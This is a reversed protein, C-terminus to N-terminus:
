NGGPGSAERKLISVLEVCSHCARGNRCGRGASQWCCITLAGDMGRQQPLVLQQYGGPERKHFILITTVSLVGVVLHMVLADATVVEQLDLYSM